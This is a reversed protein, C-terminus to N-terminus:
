LLGLLLEAIRSWVSLNKKLGQIVMHMAAEVTREM